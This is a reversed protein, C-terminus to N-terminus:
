LEINTPSPQSHITNVFVVDGLAESIELLPSPLTPCSLVVRCRVLLDRLERSRTSCSLLLVVTVLDQARYSIIGSITINVCTCAHEAPSFTPEGPFLGWECRSFVVVGATLKIVSAANIVPGV